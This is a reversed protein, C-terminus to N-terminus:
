DKGNVVSRGFVYGIATTAILKLMDTLGTLPAAGKGPPVYRDLLVVGVFVILSSFVLIKAFSLKSLEIKREHEHQPDQVSEVTGKEVDQPPVDETISEPIPDPKPRNLEDSPGSYPLRICSKARWSFIMWTPRMQKSALMM